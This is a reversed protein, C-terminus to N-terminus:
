GAEDRAEVRAVRPRRGRAGCALGLALGVRARRRVEILRELTEQRVARAHEEDAVCPAVSMTGSRRAGTTRANPASPAKASVRHEVPGPPPAAASAPALSA